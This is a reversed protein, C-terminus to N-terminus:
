VVSSLCHTHSDRRKKMHITKFVITWSTRLSFEVTAVIKIRTLWYNVIIELAKKKRTNDRGGDM